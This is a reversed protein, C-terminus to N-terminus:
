LSYFAPILLGLALCGVAAAKSQKALRMDGAKVYQFFTLTFYFCLIFLILSLIGAWGPVSDIIYVM